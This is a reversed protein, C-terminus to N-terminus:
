RSVRGSAVIQTLKTWEANIAADGARWKAFLAQDTSFAKLRTAAADPTMGITPDVVPAGGGRHMAAEGMKQGLAVFADMGKRYEEPPLTAIYDIISAPLEAATAARIASFTKMDYDPGWAARLMADNAVKSTQAAATSAAKSATTRAAMDAAFDLAVAVPLKHKVALDRVRAQDEAPIDVGDFKYDEPTKPVAMGVIRDYAAQYTPDAADKPLKLMQDAPHGILKEAAQHAKAASVFAATPDAATTWGKATAHAQTEADLGAYWEDAM